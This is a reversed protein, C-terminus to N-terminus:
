KTNFKNTSKQTVRWILTPGRKNGAYGVCEFHREEDDEFSNSQKAAANGIENNGHFRALELFPYHGTEPQTKIILGNAGEHRSGDTVVLGGNALRDLVEHFLWKQRKNRSWNSARLWAVNSGESSDGRYFFVGLKPLQFLACTSFGRRRHVRIERGSVLEEYKETRVCPEIDFFHQGDREIKVPNAVVPGDVTVDLLKFGSREQLVPQACDAPSTSNFYGLDAFWFDHLYPAFLRIPTLLDNGSHPYFLPFDSLNQLIKPGFRASNIKM